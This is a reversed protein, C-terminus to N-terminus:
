EMAKEYGRLVRMYMEMAKEYGRLARVYMEEAEATQVQDAYPLSVHGTDVHTVSGRAKEYERLAGVYM